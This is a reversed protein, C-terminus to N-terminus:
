NYRLLIRYSATYVIMMYCILYSMFMHHPVAIASIGDIIIVIFALLVVALFTVRNAKAAVHLMREDVVRKKSTISQLTVIALSVLGVYVLWNGVTGFGLFDGAGAGSTNFIAGLAIMAIGFGYKWAKRKKVNREQNEEKMM